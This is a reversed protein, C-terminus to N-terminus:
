SRRFSFSLHSFFLLFRLLGFFIFFLSALRWLSFSAGPASISEKLWKKRLKGVGHHHSLAGGNRIVEDRAESEIEEFVAVPDEIGRYVFGFYFYVCAGTHYIQSVRSSIWLKYPLGKEECIAEMKKKVNTCLDIVNEWPVSTEFSEGIMQFKLGFDRLYAIMWTLFYGRRGNEAGAKVGGHKKAIAYVTNQQSRVLEADGEFVLTVATMEDIDFRHWKTIYLRKLQNKLSDIKSQVPPAM